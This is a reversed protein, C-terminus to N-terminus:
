ESPTLHKAIKKRLASAVKHQMAQSPVTVTQTPNQVSEALHSVVKIITACTALTEKSRDDIM